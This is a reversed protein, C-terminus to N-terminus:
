PTQPSNYTRGVALLLDFLARAAQYRAAGRSTEWGFVIVKGTRDSVAWEWRVSRRNIVMEYM